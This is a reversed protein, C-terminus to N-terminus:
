QKLVKLIKSRDESIVKLLFYGTQYDSMDLKFDTTNPHLIKIQQGLINKIQIETIPTQSNINLIDIVPNPYIKVNFNIPTVTGLTTSIIQFNDVFFDYDEVDNVSGDSALIAFRVIGTYPTLDIAINEGVNNPTNGNDWTYLVSWNIGSDQSILVRVSDDSGMNSSTTLNWETVAVDM